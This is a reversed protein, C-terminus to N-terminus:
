KKLGFPIGLLLGAHFTPYINEHTEKHLPIYPQWDYGEIRYEEKTIYRLRYQVGVGAFVDFVISMKGISFVNSINGLLIKIGTKSQRMSELTEFDDDSTYGDYIYYKHNFFAYNYYAEISLYYGLGKKDFVFIGSGFYIGTSVLNYYPEYGEGYTASYNTFGSSTPYQLGTSVRLAHRESIHRQYGFRAENWLFRGLDLTICNNFSHIERITDQSYINISYFQLLIFAFIIFSFGRM